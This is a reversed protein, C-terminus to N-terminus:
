EFVKWIEFSQENWNISTTANLQRVIQPTRFDFYFEYFVVALPFKPFNEVNM